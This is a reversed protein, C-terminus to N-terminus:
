IYVLTCYLYQTNTLQQQRCIRLCSRKIDAFNLYHATKECSCPRFTTKSRRRTRQNGGKVWIYVPLRITSVLHRNTFSYAHHRTISKSYMRMNPAALMTDTVASSHSFLYMFTLLKIQEALSFIIKYLDWRCIFLPFFAAFNPDRYDCEMDSTSFM